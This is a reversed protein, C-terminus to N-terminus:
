DARRSRGRLEPHHVSPRPAAVKRSHRARCTRERHGDRGLHLRANRQGRRARNAGAVKEHGSELRGIRTKRPAPAARPKRRGLADLAFCKRRYRAVQRYLAAEGSLRARWATHSKSGNRYQSPRLNLRRADERGSEEARRATGNREQRAHRCRFPDPRFKRRSAARRFFAPTFVGTTKIEPWALISIATFAVRSPASSKRSFGSEVSLNSTVTSFAKRKVRKSSSFRSSRWRRPFCSNTPELGAMFFNSACIARTAALSVRTQMKPSVPVPFSSTARAM